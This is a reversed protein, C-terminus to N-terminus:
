HNKTKEINGKKYIPVLLSCSWEKSIKKEKWVQKIIEVLDGRITWGGFIYAEMPIYDIGSAKGKKMRLVTRCIEEEDLDNEQENNEEEQRIRGIKEEVLGRRAAGEERDIEKTKRM